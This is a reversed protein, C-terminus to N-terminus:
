KDPKCGRFKWEDEEKRKRNCYIEMDCQGNFLIKDKLKVNAGYEKNGWTVIKEMYKTIVEHFGKTRGAYYFIVSDYEAHLLSLEPHYMRFGKIILIRPNEPGIHGHIGPMYCGGKLEPQFEAFFTVATKLCENTGCLFLESIVDDFAKNYIPHQKNVNYKHMNYFFEDADKQNEARERVGSGLKLAFEMREILIRESEKDGLRAKMGISFDLSSVKRKVAKPSDIFAALYGFRNMNKAQNLKDMIRLRHANLYPYPIRRFCREVLEDTRKPLEGLTEILLTILLTDGLRNHRRDDNMEGMGYLGCSSFSSHYCIELFADFINNKRKRWEELDKQRMERILQNGKPAPETACVRMELQERHNFLTEIADCYATSFCCLLFFLSKLFCTKNKTM